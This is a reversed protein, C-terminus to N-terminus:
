RSVDSWPIRQSGPTGKGFVDDLVPEPDAVGLGHRLDADAEARTRGAMAMQLAMLRAEEIPELRAPRAPDRDDASPQEPAMEAADLRRVLHTAREVLQRLLDRADAVERDARRRAEALVSAAERDAEARRRSLLEDAESRIAEAAEEAAALIAAV